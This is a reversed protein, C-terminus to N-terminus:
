WDLPWIIKDHEREFDDDQGDHGPSYLIFGSGERQYLYDNGTFVDRPVTMNTRKRLHQLSEPYRGHSRYCKNLLHIIELGNRLSLVEQEHHYIKNFSPTSKYFIFDAMFQAPSTLGNTRESMFDKLTTFIQDSQELDDAAKPYGTEVAKEVQTYYHKILARLCANGRLYLIADALPEWQGPIFLKHPLSRELETGRFNRFFDYKSILKKELEIVPKLGTRKKTLQTIRKLFVKELSDSMARSGFLRILRKLAKKQIAIAVSNNIINQLYGFGHEMDIGCKYVLSYINAATPADGKFLQFDGYCVMARATRRILNYDPHDTRYGEVYTMTDVDLPPSILATPIDRRYYMTFRAFFAAHRRIYRDMSPIKEDTLFGGSLLEDELVFGECFPPVIKKIEAAETKAPETAASEAGAPKARAPEVNAPQAGQCCVAALVFVLLIM